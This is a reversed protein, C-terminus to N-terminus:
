NWKSNIEKIANQVAENEPEQILILRFEILAKEYDGLYYYGVAKNYLATVNNPDNSLIKKCFEIAQAFDEEEAAINALQFLADASDKDLLLIANLEDKAKDLRKKEVYYFALQFRAKTNNPNIAIADQLEILSLDTEKERFYFDELNSIKQKILFNKRKLIAQLIPKSLTVEPIGFWHLARGCYPCFKRRVAMKDSVLKQCHTCYM